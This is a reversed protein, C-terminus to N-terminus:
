SGFWRRLLSVPAPPAVFSFESLLDDVAGLSLPGTEKRLYNVERLAMWSEMCNLCRSIHAEAPSKDYWSIQGDLIRVLLRRAVCEPKRAARAQRIFDLWRAPWLCSDRDEQLIAGYRAGLQELAKDAISPPVGAIKEATSDSYGALKLFAIEQHAFPLGRLLAAVSELTLPADGAPETSTPLRAAGIELLFIRFDMLFERESLHDFTRLREYQNAALVALADRFLQRQAKGELASLYFDLIRFGVPAYNQLLYAWAAREGTECLPLCQQFTLPKSSM